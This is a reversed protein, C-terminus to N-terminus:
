EGVMQVAWLVATLVGKLGAWKAASGSDWLDASLAVRWVVLNEASHGVWRAAKPTEWTAAWQIESSAASWAVRQAVM